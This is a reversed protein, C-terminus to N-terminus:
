LRSIVISEELTPTGRRWRRSTRWLIEELSLEDTPSRKLDVAPTNAHFKEASDDFLEHTEAHQMVNLFGSTETDEAFQTRPVSDHDDDNDTQQFKAINPQSTKAIVPLADQFTFHQRPGMSHFKEDFQVDASVLLKKSCPEWIIYGAQSRPFGCFIGIVGRQPHTKSDFTRVRKSSITKTRVYIKYVCPCFLIRFKRVFPKTGYFLEYPTTVNCEKRLGKIPLVAFVKWAHELAMDGFEEGVRAFNM